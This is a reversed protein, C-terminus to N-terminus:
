WTVCRTTPVYLTPLMVLLYLILGLVLILVSPPRLGTKDYSRPRMAVLIISNNGSLMAPSLMTHSAPTYTPRDIKCVAPGFDKRERLPRGTIASRQSSSISTLIYAVECQLGSSNQNGQLRRYIFTGVKLMGSCNRSELERIFNYGNVSRLYSVLDTCYLTVSHISNFQSCQDADWKSCNTGREDSGDNCHETGDCRLIDKICQTGDACQFYGPQCTLNAIFCM